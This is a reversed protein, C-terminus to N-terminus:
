RPQARRPGSRGSNTSLTLAETLWNSWNKPASGQGRRRGLAMAGSPTAGQRGVEDGIRYQFVYSRTGSPMVLLGFGAIKTDWLLVPRAEPQCADVAKKTILGRAM